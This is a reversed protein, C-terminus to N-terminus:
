RDGVHPCPRAVQAPLNSEDVVPGPWVREFLTEKTFLRGPQEALVQLLDLARAGLEMPQGDRLRRRESAVLTFPGLHLTDATGDAAAETTDDISVPVIFAQRIKHDWADGGKPDSRDIWVQVGSARLASAVRM